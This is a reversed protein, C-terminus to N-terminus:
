LSTHLVCSVYTIIKKNCRTVEKRNEVKLGTKKYDIKKLHHINNCKKGVRKYKSKKSCDSAFNVTSAINVVRIESAMLADSTFM